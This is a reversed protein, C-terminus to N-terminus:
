HKRAARRQANLAHNQRAIDAASMQKAPKNKESIITILTILRNLHWYQAEWPIQASVMWFYILESTITEGQNAQGAQKKIVTATHPDEIYAVIEAVMANNSFLAQYSLEPIQNLAMCRIYDQMEVNSKEINNDLFRKKYKSEWKSVAVLSHELQLVADPSTVFEENSEDFFEIGPIRIELM